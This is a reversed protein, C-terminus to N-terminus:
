VACIASQREPLSVCVSMGQRSSQVSPLDGTLTVNIIIIYMYICM